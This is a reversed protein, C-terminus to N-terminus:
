KQALGNWLFFWVANALVDTRATLVAALDSLESLFMRLLQQHSLLVAVVATFVVVTKLNSANPSPQYSALM